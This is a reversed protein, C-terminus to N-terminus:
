RLYQSKQKRGIEAQLKISSGLFHVRGKWLLRLPKRPSTDTGLAITM